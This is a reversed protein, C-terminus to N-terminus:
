ELVLGRNKFSNRLGSVSDTDSATATAFRRGNIGIEIPRSALDEIADALSQLNVVNMTRQIAGEIYGELRDIPLIAEPGAEGGAMLRNGNVGFITPRMMIGGDKYWDISLKPVSPPNLSFSGKISFHPLKIDPFKLKLNNFFGKVKDLAKRFPEAIITTTKAFTAKVKSVVGSFFSSVGSFINKIASWAAKFTSSFWSKVNSFVNKIGSWINKFYSTWGSVINKIGEWAGKFDGTLVSKVVSFIGKITNWINQFFGTVASWILKVAAWASKFAGSFYTKVVSFVQKISSWVLKFYDVAVSWILKINEWAVKFRAVLFDKAISFATTVASWIAEFYPKCESWVVKIKAWMDIFFNRFGECKNWLVVFGAALGAIVAVVALAPLAFALMASNALWQAVTYIGLGIALGTIGIALVGVVAAIAKMATPHEKAWELASVMLGSVKEIAPAMSELLATKLETFATTVPEISEALESEAVMNEATAEKAEMQAGATERYTDAADGYLSTLTDTILQQREQETSCESLAVNFADEATVVDEGMYKAFMKSAESSWNLADALGGTVTGTKATEMSAEALGEVPLSDQFTGYVGTTIKVWKNLDKQNDAMKSINNATEVAKADDGFVAYLDKWTDKATETSFGMNDFSTTLTAMNQRLEATAEPLEGLYGIFESIKGIAAQIASSALDAVVGKFVTFGEGAGDAGDGADDLGKKLKGADKSADSMAEGADEVSNKQEEIEANCKNIAQKIKEQATQANILQTRLKSVEDSDEGFIQVAKEVKNSLAETKSESAKLEAQLLSHKKELGEISTGNTRMQADNLKLESRLQSMQNNTKKIEANFDSTEATFRIKAENKAM